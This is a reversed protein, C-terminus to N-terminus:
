RPVPRGLDQIRGPTWASGDWALHHVAGGPGAAFVDLRGPARAVVAGAPRPPPPAAQLWGALAALDMRLVQEALAVDLHEVTDRESHIRPNAGDDGEISLVAPVGADLFPVHDSAFPSLSTSVRLDTHAAAAAALDTVLHQSLAAGELLVARGAGNRSAIMDLNLVARVRAREQAPLAAVHQRSGLLGQEEGGFLVLRLDHTWTTGALVRGLELVGAAGSANDDAGPAPADPGGALNVSDLHATLVVLDRAGTGRGPRDAVVNRSSGGGVAVVESRVAFGSAALRAGAWAAAGAHHPSLSHRTPLAALTRVDADFSAASLRGLLELVGAAARRAPVRPRDVVVAGAPLPQVRWCRHEGDEHAPHARHEPLSPPTTTDVVLHRGRDLVVAVEPHAQQFAAGVQTVLALAGARGSRRARERLRLLREDGDAAWVLLEDGFRSWAVEQPLGASAPLLAWGLAAAASM